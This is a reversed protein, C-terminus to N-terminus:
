DKRSSKYGRVIFLGVVGITLTIMIIKGEDAYGNLMFLYSLFALLGIAAFAFFSNLITTWFHHNVIKREIKRRHGSEQETMTLLRNPIQPDVKQYENMMKPSPIIGEYHEATIQRSGSNNNDETLSVGKSKNM